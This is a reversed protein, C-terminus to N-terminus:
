VPHLKTWAIIDRNRSRPERERGHQRQMSIRLVPDIADTACEVPVRSLSLFGPVRFFLILGLDHIAETDRHNRCKYIM